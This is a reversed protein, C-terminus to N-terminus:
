ILIALKSVDDLSEIELYSKKEVVFWRFRLFDKILVWAYELVDDKLTQRVHERASVGQCSKRVDLTLKPWCTFLVIQLKADEATLFDKCM